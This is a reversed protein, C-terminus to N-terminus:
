GGLEDDVRESAFVDKRQVAQDLAVDVREDLARCQDKLARALLALIAHRRKSRTRRNTIRRDDLDRRIILHELHDVDHEVLSHRRLRAPLDVSGARSRLYTPLYLFAMM